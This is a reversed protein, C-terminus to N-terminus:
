CSPVAAACACESRCAVPLTVTAFNASMRLTQLHPLASLASDPVTGVLNNSAVDVGIVNAGALDCAVGQWSCADASGAWGLSRTWGGALGGTASYLARLAAVESAPPDAVTVALRWVLACLLLRASQRQPPLQGLQM